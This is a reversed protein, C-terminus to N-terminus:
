IYEPPPTHVRYDFLDQLSIASRIIDGTEPTNSVPLHISEGFCYPSFLKEVCSRLGEDMPATDPTSITIEVEEVRESSRSLTFSQEQGDIEVTHVFPAAYGLFYISSLDEQDILKVTAQVGYEGM